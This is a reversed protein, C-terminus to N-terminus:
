AAHLETTEVSFVVAFVVAFVATGRDLDWRLFGRPLHGLLTPCTELRGTHVRFDAPQFGAGRFYSGLVSGGRSTRQRM